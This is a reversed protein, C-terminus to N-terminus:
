RGLGPVSSGADALVNFALLISKEALFAKRGPFGCMILM